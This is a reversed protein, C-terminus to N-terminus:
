FKPDIPTEVTSHAELIEAADFISDERFRRGLIQVGVPLGDIVSTSITIAPFGLMSISIMPWQAELCKRMGDISSIDLDQEFAQEASVPLLLLPYDQMFQELKSILIGRRNFGKMFTQINPTSGWSEEAIASYYKAALKMGKDGFEEIVPMNARFEELTLLSWLKAAETLLPLEVEEVIYGADRLRGAADDLAKNVAPTPKVGGIDKLLGVRIPRRIPEGYLPAPAYVPCRPDYISMIELSLRLDAVSRALPGEVLMTQACLSQDIKQSGFWGAVRGVTPRIGHIGCCYSPHRISGGIDNGQAIPIM